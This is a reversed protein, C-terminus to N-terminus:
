TGHGGGVLPAVRVCGCAVSLVFCLVHTLLVVAQVLPTSKTHKQYSQTSLIDIATSNQLLKNNKRLHMQLTLAKAEFAIAIRELHVCLGSFCFIKKTDFRWDGHETNKMCDFWLRFLVLDNRLLFSFFQTQVNEKLLKESPLSHMHFLFLVRRPLYKLVDCPRGTTVKQDIKQKAGENWRKSVKQSAKCVQRKSLATQPLLVTMTWFSSFVPLSNQVFVVNAQFSNHIKKRWKRRKLIAWEGGGPDPRVSWHKHRLVSCFCRQLLQCLSFHRGICLAAFSSPFPDLFNLVWGGGFFVGSFWLNMRETRFESCRRGPRCQQDLCKLRPLFYM